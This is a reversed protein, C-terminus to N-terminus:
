KFYVSFGNIQNNYHLVHSLYERKVKLFDSAETVSDFLWQVTHDPSIVRVPKKCVPKKFQSLRHEKVLNDRHTLRRLNDLRNNLRNNDIHDVDTLSDDYDPKFSDMVLRHVLVGRIKGDISLKVQQYGLGIDQPKILHAKCLRVSLKGQRMFTITHEKSRVNGMNSVEYLDLDMGNIRADIWEELEDTAVRSNNNDM